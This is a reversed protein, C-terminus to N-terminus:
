PAERPRVKAETRTGGANHTASPSPNQAEACLGWFVGLDAEQSLRLTAGVKRWSRKEGVCVCVVGSQLGLHPYGFPLNSTDSHHSSGGNRELVEEVGVYIVEDVGWFMTYGGDRREATWTRVFPQCVGILVTLTVRIAIRLTPFAM